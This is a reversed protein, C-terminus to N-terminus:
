NHVGSKKKLMSFHNEKKASDEWKKLSTVGLRDESWLSEQWAVVENVSSIWCKVVNANKEM